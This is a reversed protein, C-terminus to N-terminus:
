LGEPEKDATDADDLDMGPDTDEDEDQERRTGLLAVDNLPRRRRLRQRAVVEKKPQPELADNHIDEYELDM